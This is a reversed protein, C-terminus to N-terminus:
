RADGWSPELAGPNVLEILPATTLSLDVWAPPVANPLPSPVVPGTAAGM